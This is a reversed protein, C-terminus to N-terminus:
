EKCMSMSTVNVQCQSPMSKINITGRRVGTPVQYYRGDTQRDTHADSFKKTSGMVWQAMQSKGEIMTWCLQSSSTTRLVQQKSKLMKKVKKYSWSFKFDKVYQVIFPPWKTSVMVQQVTQCQGEIMTEVTLQSSSTTCLAQQWKTSVMVQQVTQCQGEIMTEVTLLITSTTCWVKKVKVKKCPWLFRVIKEYQVMFPPWKTSVM